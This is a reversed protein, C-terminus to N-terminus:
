YRQLRIGHAKQAHNKLHQLDNLRIGTAKCQPHPCLIESRVELAKIHNAVHSWLTYQQSFIQTRDQFNLIEDGCCFLCQLPHCKM